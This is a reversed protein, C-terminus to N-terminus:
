IIKYDIHSNIKNYLYEFNSFLISNFVIISKLVKKLDKEQKGVIKIIIKSNRTQNYKELLLYDDFIDHIEFRKKNGTNKDYIIMYDLLM